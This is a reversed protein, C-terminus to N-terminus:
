VLRVWPLADFRMPTISLFSGAARAVKWRVSHPFGGLPGCSVTEVSLGAWLSSDLRVARHDQGLAHAGLTVGWDHQKLVLYRM